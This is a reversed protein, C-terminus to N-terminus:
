RIRSIKRLVSVSTDRSSVPLRKIAFPNTGVENLGPCSTFHLKFGAKRALSTLRSNFKGYPWAITEAKKGLLAQLRSASARLDRELLDAVPNNKVPGFANFIRLNDTHQDHTHSGFEWFGSQHMEQIQSDNLYDSFQLRRGIRATIVFVTMPVKLKRAVPFAYHYLSEYGDDFTILVPKEIKENLTGNLFRAVQELNLPTFGASLLAQIQSEFQQPTCSVDSTVVPQIHHYVLVPLVKPMSGYLFSQGSLLLAVAALFYIRIINVVAVRDFGGSRYSEYDGPV